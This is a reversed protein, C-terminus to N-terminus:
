SVVGINIRSFLKEIIQKVTNMMKGFSFSQIGHCRKGKIFWCGLNSTVTFNVVMACHVRVFDALCAIRM